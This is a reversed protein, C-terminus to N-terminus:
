DVLLNLREGGLLRQKWESKSEGEYFDLYDAVQDLVKEKYTRSNQAWKGSVEGGALEIIKQKPSKKM